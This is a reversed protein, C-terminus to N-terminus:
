QVLLAKLRPTIEGVAGDGHISGESQRGTSTGDPKPLAFLPILRSEYGARHLADLDRDHDFVLLRLQGFAEDLQGAAAADHFRQCPECWSAGVYVLLQKGARKAAALETRVVAAVDDGPPADRLELHPKAETAGSEPACGTVLAILALRIWVRSRTSKPFRYSIMASMQQHSYRIARCSASASEGLNEVPRGANGKCHGRTGLSDGIM